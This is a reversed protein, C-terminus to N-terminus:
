SASIPEAFRAAFRRIRAVRDDDPTWARALFRSPPQGDFSPRPREFWRRVGADNYAARLDAVVGTLWHVRQAVDDPVRRQGAAYRRLSLTSAGTYRSLAEWDLVEALSRIESRPTPSDELADLVEDLYTVYRRPARTIGAAPIGPASQGIGVRKLAELVRRAAGNLEKRDWSTLEPEGRLLGM